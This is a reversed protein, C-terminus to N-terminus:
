WGESFMAQQRDGIHTQPVRVRNKIAAVAKQVAESSLEAVPVQWPACAVVHDATITKRAIMRRVSPPSVGLRKAAEDLTITEQIRGPNVAPIRHHQRASGVRIENWTNGHGTRLGLWNLTSAIQEDTFKGAMQRIVEIAELSTCHGHKGSANKKLRLESHRGGAWHLLLVIEKKQDDVDAIIEEILIRVIRQKLRMDTSPLDWVAPLDQALSM